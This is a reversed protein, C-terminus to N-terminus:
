HQWLTHCRRGQTHVGSYVGLPHTIPPQTYNTAGYPDLTVGNVATGNSSDLDTVTWAETHADWQLVGHRESVTEDEIHLKSAKTRGVTINTGKPRYQTGTSPGELAELSLLHPTISAM